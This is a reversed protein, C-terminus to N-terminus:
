GAKEIQSLKRSRLYNIIKEELEIELDTKSNKILKIWYDLSNFRDQKVDDAFSNYQKEKLWKILEEKTV